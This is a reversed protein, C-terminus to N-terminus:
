QINKSKTEMEQETDLILHSVSFLTQPTDVMRVFFPLFSSLISYLHHM